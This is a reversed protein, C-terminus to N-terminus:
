FDIIWYSELFLARRAGRLFVFLVDLSVFFIFLDVYVSLLTPLFLILWVSGVLGAVGAGVVKKEASGKKWPPPSRTLDLGRLSRAAGDPRSSRASGM